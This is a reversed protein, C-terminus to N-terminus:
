LSETLVKEVRAKEAKEKISFKEEIGGKLIDLCTNTFYCFWGVIGLFKFGDEFLYVLENTSQQVLMDTFVSLGLFGLSSLLVLYNTARVKDEFYVLFSIILLPYMAVVYKENIGLLRPIAEEHLLFFDDFLLVTTLLGGFLLFTKNLNINWVHLLVVSFLCTSATACWLLIGMNSILGYYYMGKSVIVADRTLESLKVYPQVYVAVLVLLAPAYIVLSKLLATSQSSLSDKLKM